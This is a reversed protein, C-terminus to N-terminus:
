LWGSLKCLGVVFETLSGAMQPYAARLAELGAACNDPADEFEMVLDEIMAPKLGPHGLFGFNNGVRFVLPEGSASAALVEAGAPLVPRDRMYVACPFREPLHGALADPLTRHATEVAFRLPAEEAGGGAATALLIAGQSIGIVPVAAKLCAAVLRLEPALSPVLRGSVIGLPGAGLV